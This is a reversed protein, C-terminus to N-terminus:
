EANRAADHRIGDQALRAHLVIDVLENIETGGFVPQVIEEIRACLGTEVGQSFEAGGCTDADAASGHAWVPYM